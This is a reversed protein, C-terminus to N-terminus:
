DFAMALGGFGSGVVVFHKSADARGTAALVRTNNNNQKKAYHTPQGGANNQESSRNNYSGYSPVGNTADRHCSSMTLNLREHGFNDKRGVNLTYKLDCAEGVM